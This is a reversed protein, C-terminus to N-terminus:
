KFLASIEVQLGDALKGISRLSLNRHGSEVDAIYSRDMGSSEALDEQTWGHEMRIERVRQGFARQLANETFPKRPNPM